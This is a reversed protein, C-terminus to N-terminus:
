RDNSRHGETPACRDHRRSSGPRITSAGPLSSTIAFKMSTWEPKKPTVWCCSASACWRSRSSRPRRPRASRAPRARGPTPCPRRDRSPATSRRRDHADMRPGAVRGGLDVLQRHLDSMYDRLGSVNHRRRPTAATDAEISTRGVSRVRTAPARRAMPRTRAIGHGAGRSPRRGDRGGIRCKPLTSTTPDPAYRPQERYRSVDSWSWAGRGAGGNAHLSPAFAMPCGHSVTRQGASRVLPAGIAPRPTLGLSSPVTVRVSRGPM